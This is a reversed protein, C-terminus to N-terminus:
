QSMQITDGRAVEFPLSIRHSQFRCVRGFGPRFPNVGQAPQAISVTRILAPTIKVVKGRYLLNPVCRALNGWERM